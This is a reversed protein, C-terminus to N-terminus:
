RGRLYLEVASADVFQDAQARVSEGVSRRVMLYTGCLLSLTLEHDGAHPEATRPAGLSERMREMEVRLAQLAQTNPQSADFYVRKIHTGLARDGSVAFLRLLAAEEMDNFRLPVYKSM